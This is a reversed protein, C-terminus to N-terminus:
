DPEDEIRALDAERVKAEERRIAAVLEAADVVGHHVITRAIARVLVPTDDISDILSEWAPAEAIESERATRTPYAGGPKGPLVLPFGYLQAFFDRPTVGMAHLIALLQGVQLRKQHTMIQSIYSKGWGMVEQVHLQTVKRERMAARLADLIRKIEHEVEM